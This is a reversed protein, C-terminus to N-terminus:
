ELANLYAAILDTEKQNLQMNPMLCGPKLPQPDAVWQTLNALDNPILGAALTQRSRLHTLDPGFKGQSSTGRVTHCNVCSHGLFAAQGKILEESTPTVAPKKQNDLWSRFKEPPDAVVRLLMGAHQTGCYEACQGLFLGEEQAQFWMRNTRGPIVDTKGALRPVWFSHIVDVSELDLHVPRGVPVHLENATVIELKEGDFQQYVYEWWWRHGIVTVRLADTPPEGGQRVEAVIRVVVLFLVFVTLAPAVTWAIEIPKSGYIQPPEAEQSQNRKRFRLILYLLLGEVLLFIVGTIALVLLFLERISDAPPSAPDFVSLNEAALPIALFSCAAFPGDNRFVPWRVQRSPLRLRM